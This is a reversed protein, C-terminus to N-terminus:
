DTQAALVSYWLIPPKFLLCKNIMTRSSFDLIVTDAHNPEQHLGEEQKVSLWNIM